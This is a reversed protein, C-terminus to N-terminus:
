KIGYKLWNLIKRILSLRYKNSFVRIVGQDPQLNKDFIVKGEWLDNEYATTQKSFNEGSGDTGINKIKSHVPYLGYANHKTQSWTWRIAWSSIVGAQQKYLMPWLDDGGQTLQDRLTQNNKLKEFDTVQWDAKAWRDRWTGWGWSSARPVLYLDHPYDKPIKLEPGYGSVSFIDERSEYINLAQNMFELFDTTCEMDDELVIVSKHQNLVQSVGNIVSSALGMNENSLHISVSAFGSISPLFERIEAIAKKDEEKKPGDSFIILHSTAALSNKKLAEVTRRLHLPRNYCFIVVPAPMNTDTM